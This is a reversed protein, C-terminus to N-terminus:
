KNYDGCLRCKRNEQSKDIKAKVHHQKIMM